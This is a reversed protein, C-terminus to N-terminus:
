APAAWPRNVDNSGRTLPRHRRVAAVEDRTVLLPVQVGRDAEETLQWCLPLYAPDIQTLDYWGHRRDPVAVARMGSGDGDALARRLPEVSLLTLVDCGGVPALRGARPGTTTLLEAAVRSMEDAHRRAAQWAADADVGAAALVSPPLPLVRATNASAPGADDRLDITAPDLDLLDVDPPDLDPDDVAVGVGYSLAGGTVPHRVWAPGLHDLHGAPLALLQVADGLATAAAAGLGAVWSRLRLLNTIRHQGAVSGPHHDGCTRDIETWTVLAGGVRVGSDGPDLDVGHVVSVSLIAQRLELPNQRTNM